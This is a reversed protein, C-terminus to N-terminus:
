DIRPDPETPATSELAVGLVFGRGRESFVDLQLAELRRRLRYILDDLARPTPPGGPWVSIELEQRAVLRGGADLLAQVILAESAALAVSGFGNCLLADDVLVPRRRFRRVLNLTRARVDREDAPLQIWDEWAEIAPAEAGPEVLWLCPSKRLAFEARRAGDTPWRVIAVQEIAPEQPAAAM